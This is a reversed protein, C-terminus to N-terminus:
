VGRLGSTDGERKHHVASAQPSTFAPPILDFPENITDDHAYILTQYAASPITLWDSPGTFTNTTYNAGAGNVLVTNDVPLRLFFVAKVLKENYGNLSTFDVTGVVKAYVINAPRSSAVLGNQLPKLLGNVDLVDPVIAGVYDHYSKIRLNLNVRLQNFGISKWQESEVDILNSCNHKEGMIQLKAQHDLTISNAVANKNINFALSREHHTMDFSTDPYVMTTLKGYTHSIKKKPIFSAFFPNALAEDANRKKAESSM